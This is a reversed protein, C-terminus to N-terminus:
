GKEPIHSEVLMRALRRGIEATQSCGTVQRTVYAGELVMCFEQAFAAPDTAGAYGAIERIIEEMAAKHEAAAQHAPDHHMPFQVAVNIFFCGNFEESNLMAEIADFACLLQGRPSDGGHKRLLSRFEDRWFRDHWRLVELVLADKSEFHNYFTTKTVGVANIIQDLGVAHFGDRYFLDGATVILRERTSTAM